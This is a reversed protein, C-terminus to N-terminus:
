LEVIRGKIDAGAEIIGVTKKHSFRLDTPTGPNFFLVGDLWENMPQHTHGFVIVNVKDFERRIRDTIDWPAGGGHILGITFKGAKVVIKDPLSGRAASYDMNGYVAVTKAIKNLQELVDLSVLDGSHLIMDVGEFQKLAEEPIKDAVVPIHTDSIVGIKM